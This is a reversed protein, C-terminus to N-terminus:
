AIGKRAAFPTALIDCKPCHAYGNDVYWRGPMDIRAQAGCMICRAGSLPAHQDPDIAIESVKPWHKGPRVTIPGTM